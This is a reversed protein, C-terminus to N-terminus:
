SFYLGGTQSLRIERSFKFNAFVACPPMKSRRLFAAREEDRLPCQYLLSVPSESNKVCIRNEPNHLFRDPRNDRRFIKIRRALRRRFSDIKQRPLVNRRRPIVPM